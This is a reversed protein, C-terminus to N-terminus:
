SADKSWLGGIERIVVRDAGNGAATLLREIPETMPEHSLKFTSHHVAAIREARVHDAMRWVQEPNAHAALYPNYAGIGFVALDVDGVDRFGEFYATDGAYLVKRRADTLVYANYGRHM